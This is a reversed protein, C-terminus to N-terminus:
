CNFHVAVLITV